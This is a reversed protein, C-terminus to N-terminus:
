PLRSWARSATPRRHLVLSPVPRSRGSPPFSSPRRCLRAQGERYDGLAARGRVDPRNRPWPQGCRSWSSSSTKRTRASDRHDHHGPLVGHRHARARAAVRRAGALHHQRDSLRRRGHAEEALGRAGSPICCYRRAQLGARRVPDHHHPHIVIGAIAYGIALWIGSLVLWIINLLARVM